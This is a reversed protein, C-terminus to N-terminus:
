ALRKRRIKMALYIYKAVKTLTAVDKSALISVMKQENTEYWLSRPLINERLGTYANCCCLFHYESEIAGSMCIECFRHERIIGLERGKEIMLEHASLRFKTLCLRYPKIICGLYTEFVIDTKIHRYLTLKSYDELLDWSDNCALRMLRQKTDSLFAIDNEVRQNAWVEEFGLRQLLLKVNLGWCQTQREAMEFQKSYAKAIYREPAARIAKLWYKIIKEYRSFILGNKGCEALVAVAPTSRKVGLAYRFFNNRVRETDKAEDFGWIESGYTLIPQIQADFVKTLIKPNISKYMYFASKMLNTAKKAQNALRKQTEFWSGGPSFIVGLYKYCSVVEIRERKFFWKEHRALVGGKRFVMAKTKELNVKLGNNDCHVELRNILRQLETPTDALLLLDDAFALLPLKETGINAGAFPETKLSFELDRIFFNFLFPSLICGQRVGRNCLFFDSCGEKHIIKSKVARYMSQLTKLMKSSINAKELKNWLKNRDICDFAKSFDVYLCYLKRKKKSLASEVLTRLVFIHDITSDSEQVIM